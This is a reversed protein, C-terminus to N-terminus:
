KEGWLSEADRRLILWTAGSKRARLKGRRIAQYVAQDTIPFEEAIEQPTMVIKLTGDLVSEVDPLDSDTTQMSTDIESQHDYYYALAAHVQGLTLQFADTIREVEWGFRAYHLAIQEVTIRRGELYPKGDFRSPDIAIHELMTLM